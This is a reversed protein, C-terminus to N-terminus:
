GFLVVIYQTRDRFILMQDIGYINLNIVFSPKYNILSFSTIRISTGKGLM